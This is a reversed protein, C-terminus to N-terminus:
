DTGTVPDGPKPSTDRSMWALGGIVGAVLLAGVILWIAATTFSRASPDTYRAQANMTSVIGPRLKWEVISNSVQSGNTSTVDGPFSVTLLVDAQPDSLSTLDVRGELIVLDGARRLSIDVGAADRSMGALQPLEAFTLDSFVAQSGVYDDRSYESVAVKTAFPLNNLLQPGKDEADRPKAAAIIQGSVRDDPSVTISTRVRVCGVAMPLILLLMVLTLLRNRSRRSPLRVHVSTM